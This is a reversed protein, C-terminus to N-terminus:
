KNQYNYLFEHKINHKQDYIKYLRGQGDYVYYTTVGYPDTLTTINGLRDYTITQIQSNPFTQRLADLRSMDPAFTIGYDDRDIVSSLQKDTLGRMIAIPYHYGYSWLYVTHISDRDTTEVVNGYDDYKLAEYELTYHSRFDGPEMPAMGGASWVRVPVAYGFGGYDFDTRVANIVKGNISKVTEFPVNKMNSDYLPKQGSPEDTCYHYETQISDGNSTYKRINQPMDNLLGYSTQERDVISGQPTYLTTSHLISGMKFSTPISYSLATMQCPNEWMREIYEQYKDEDKESPLGIYFGPPLEDALWPIPTYVYIGNVKDTNKGCYQYSEKRLISERGDYYEVTVPKGNLPDSMKFTKPFELRTGGMYDAHLTTVSDACDSESHYNYKTISSVTDGDYRIVEVNRYGIEYGQASNTFPTYPKSYRSFITGFNENDMLLSWGPVPQIRNVIAFSTSHPEMVIGESYAYETKSLAKGDYIDTISKVRVGGLRHSVPNDGFSVTDKVIKEKCVTSSFYQACPGEPYALVQYKGKELYARTYRKVVSYGNIIDDTQLVYVDLTNDGRVNKPLQEWKGETENYKEILSNFFCGSFNTINKSASTKIRYTVCTLSYDGGKEVQFEKGYVRDQTVGESVLSDSLQCIVTRVTDHLFTMESEDYAMCYRPEYEIRTTLGTPYSVETLSGAKSGTFDITPKRGPLRQDNFYVEPSYRESQYEEQMNYFGLNDYAMSCKDPLPTSDYTFSYSGEPANVEKLFPRSQIDTSSINQRGQGYDYHLVYKREYQRASDTIDIESVLTPLSTTRYPAIDYRPTRKFEISGGPFSIEKLVKCKIWAFSLTYQDHKIDRARGDMDLKYFELDTRQPVTAIDEEDYIFNISFGKPSTIETPMWATASYSALIEDETPSNGPNNVMRTFIYDADIGRPSRPTNETFSFPYTREIGSFVYKYGDGDTIEWTPLHKGNLADYGGDVICVAKMNGEHASWLVSDMRGTRKIKERYKDSLQPFTFQGGSGNLSVHIIDPEYDAKGRTAQQLETAYHSQESVAWAKNLDGVLQVPLDHWCYGYDPDLDDMGKIDRAICGGANLKWGLGVDGAEQGVKIGTTSYSLSIPFKKGELDIEYIPVEIEAVGTYNSVPVNGYACIAAANPSVPTVEFPNKVSNNTSQCFIYDIGVIILLIILLSKKM